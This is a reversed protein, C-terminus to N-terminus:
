IIEVKLGLDLRNSIEEIQKRKTDTASHTIVWYGNSVPHQNYKSSREKSVLNIENNIIGLQGVEEPGVKEIVQCLTTAVNNNYFQTGDQFTVRLKQRPKKRTVSDQHSEKQSDIPPKKSKDDTLFETDSFRFRKKESVKINIKGVPSYEVVLVLDRKIPTLISIIERSLSPIIENRILEEEVRNTESILKSNIEIGLEELQKISNYLKELKSM